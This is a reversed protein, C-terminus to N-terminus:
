EGKQCMKLCFLSFILCFIFFTHFVTKIGLVLRQGLVRSFQNFAIAHNKIKLNFVWCKIYDLEYSWNWSTNNLCYIRRPCINRKKAEFHPLYYSFSCFFTYIAAPLCSAFFGNAPWFICCSLTWVFLVKQGAQSYTIFQYM